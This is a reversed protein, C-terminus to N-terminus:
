GKPDDGLGAGQHSGIVVILLVAVPDGLAWAKVESKDSVFRVSESTELDFYQIFIWVRLRM